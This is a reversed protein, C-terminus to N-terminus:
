VLLQLAAKLQTWRLELQKIVTIETPTTLFGSIFAHSSCEPASALTNINALFSRDKFLILFSFKVTKKNVRGKCPNLIVKPIEENISLIDKSSLSSLPYSGRNVFSLYSSSLCFAQFWNEWNQLMTLLCM